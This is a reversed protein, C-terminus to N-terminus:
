LVVVVGNIVTMAHNRRAQPIASVRSTFRGNPILEQCAEMGGYTTFWLIYDMVGKTTALVWRKINSVVRSISMLSVVILDFYYLRENPAPTSLRAGKPYRMNAGHQRWCGDMLHTGFQRRCDHDLERVEGRRRLETSSAHWEM